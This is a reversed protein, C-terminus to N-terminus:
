RKKRLKWRAGGLAALGGGLLLLSMPEPVPEANFVYTVKKFQYFSFSPTQFFDLEVFAIGSGSLETTFVIDSATCTAHSVTCGSMVGLFTFPATLTIASTPPPAVISGAIFQFTGAIFLDNFTMGNITVTGQGLSTGAFTSNMNLNGGGCPFCSFPGVFGVDGGGATVSFNQGAFSYNPGQFFGPVTLSGSTVVITDAHATSPMFTALLLLTCLGILFKPM